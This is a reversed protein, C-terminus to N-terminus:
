AARPPPSATTLRHLLDVTETEHSAFAGHDSPWTVTRTARSAFRRQLDPHMVRDETCVVYTSPRHHWAAGTTPQHGPAMTQPVLRATHHARETPDLRAHFLRGAAEPAITTTGAPDGVMSSRLDTPPASALLGLATEGLDPMMAALYVLHDIRHPPLGTIVAGGYSHGCAVAPGGGPLLDLATEAAATDAALSGRHLEAVAVVVGRARLGTAVGDWAHGTHWAGHVLLVGRPASPSPPLTM